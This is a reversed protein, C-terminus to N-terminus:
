AYMIYVGKEDFDNVSFELGCESCVGIHHGHGWTEDLDNLHPTDNTRKRNHILQATIITECKPCSGSVQKGHKVDSM